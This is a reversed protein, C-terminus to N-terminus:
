HETPFHSKTFQLIHNAFPENGMALALHYAHTLTEKAIPLDAEQGMKVLAWAKNYMTHCLYPCRGTTQALRIGQDCIKVCEEYRGELGLFKSLNYLIMPMTRLAEELNTIHSDYYRAIHYLINVSEWRRNCHELALAINNLIIIEEYSLLSPLQGDAYKPHTLCLAKELKALSDEPSNDKFHFIVDQLLIFQEDLASPNKVLTKFQDLYALGAGHDGEIYSQRIKYKLDHSIFDKESLYTQAMIDSYGIRQLLVELHNQTPMREGNEIRSLTPVSCIGDALDEQSLGLEIRRRRIVAGIQSIAM